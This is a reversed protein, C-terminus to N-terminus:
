TSTTDLVPGHPHADLLRNKKADGHVLTAIIAVQGYAQVHFGHRKIRSDAQMKSGLSVSDDKGNEYWSMRFVGHRNALLKDVKSM